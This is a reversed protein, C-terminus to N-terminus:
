FSFTVISITGDPTNTEDNLVGQTLPNTARLFYYTKDLGNFEATGNSSTILSYDPSLALDRDEKHVYLDVRAGAILSDAYVGNMYVLQGVTARITANYQHTVLTEQDSKSCSFLVESISILSIFIVRKM